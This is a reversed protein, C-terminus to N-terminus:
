MNIIKRFLDTNVLIKNLLPGKLIFIQESNYLTPICTILSKTCEHCGTVSKEQVATNSLLSDARHKDEVLRKLMDSVGKPGVFFVFM